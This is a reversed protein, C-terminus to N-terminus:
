GAHVGDSVDVQGRLILEPRRDLVYRIAGATFIFEAVALPVQTPIFGAAFIAWYYLLAEPHLSVALEFATTIYTLMDGVFGAMGASLWISAGFKRFVRYTFYGSFGGVIGMSFTNAGLTTLGGHALFMHFSLAISSLVVTAWPGVLIASMPTGIPHSSSGTVPVPIHWVSIVFVSAGMLALVPLYVPHMRATKKIDRVGVALFVLAVIYWAAIWTPSLMGDSIHM